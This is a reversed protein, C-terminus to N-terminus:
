KEVARYVQKFRADAIVGFDGLAYQLLWDGADGVLMDGGVSRAVRFPENIQKAFVPVPRAMFAGDRNAGLLGFAEFAAGTSPNSCTASSPISGIQMTSEYKLDFRDGSVSWKDGTSGTIIADGSRYRNKGERSTLEGDSTAFVVNVVETKVFQRAQPDKILDVENFELM